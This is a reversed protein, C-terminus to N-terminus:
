RSTVGFLVNVTGDSKIGICNNQYTDVGLIDLWQLLWRHQTNCAVTGVITGNNKIGVVDIGVAAIEAIDPWVITDQKTSVIAGDSRIGIILNIGTAIAIINTWSQVGLCCDEKGTAVVTGDM